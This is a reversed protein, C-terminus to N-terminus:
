IERLILVLGIIGILALMIVGTAGLNIGSGPSLVNISGSAGSASSGVEQAGTTATETPAISLGGGGGGGFLSALFGM